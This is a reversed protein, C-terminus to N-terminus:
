NCRIKKKNSRQRRVIVQFKLMDNKLLTNEGEMKLVLFSEMNKKKLPFKGYKKKSSVPTLQSFVAYCSFTALSKSIYM